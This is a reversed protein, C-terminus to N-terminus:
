SFCPLTSLEADMFKGIWGSFSFCCFEVKRGTVEFKKRRTSTSVLSSHRPCNFFQGLIMSDCFLKPQFLGELDDLGVMLGADGHGGLGTGAAMAVPKQFSSRPPFLKLVTFMDTHKNSHQTTTFFSIECSFFLSIHPSPPKPPLLEATRSCRKGRIPTTSCCLAAAKKAAFLLVSRVAPAAGEEKCITRGTGERGHM